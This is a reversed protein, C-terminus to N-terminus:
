SPETKSSAWKLVSTEKPPKKISPPKQPNSPYWTFSTNTKTSAVSISSFLKELSTPKAKRALTCKKGSSKTKFPTITTTKALQKPVAHVLRHNLQLDIITVTALLMATRTKATWSPCESSHNTLDGM